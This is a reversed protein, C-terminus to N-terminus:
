FRSNRLMGFSGMYKHAVSQFRISILPILIGVPRKRGSQTWSRIRSSFEYLYQEYLIQVSVTETPSNDHTRVCPCILRTLGFAPSFGIKSLQSKILILSITELFFGVGRILSRTKVFNIEQLSSRKM